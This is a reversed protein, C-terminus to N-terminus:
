GSRGAAVPKGGAAPLRKGCGAAASQAKQNLSFQLFHQKDTYVHLQM